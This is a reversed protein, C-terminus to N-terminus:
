FAYFGRDGQDPPLLLEIKPFSLKISRSPTTELSESSSGGPTKCLGPTTGPALDITTLYSSPELGIQNPALHCKANAHATCVFEGVGQVRLTAAGGDIEM